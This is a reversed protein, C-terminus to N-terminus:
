LTITDPIIPGLHWGARPCWLAILIYGVVVATTNFFTEEQFKGRNEGDRFCHTVQGLIVKVTTPVGVNIVFKWDELSFSRFIRLNSKLDEPSLEKWKIVRDTQFESGALKRLRLEFGLELSDQFFVSDSIM